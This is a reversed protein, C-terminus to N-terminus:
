TSSRPDPQEAAAASPETEEGPRVPGLNAAVEAASQGAVVLRPAVDRALRLAEELEYSPAGFWSPDEPVFWTGDAALCHLEPKTQGVECHERYIIWRGRGHHAVHVIYWRHNAENDPVATVEYHTAKVQPESM